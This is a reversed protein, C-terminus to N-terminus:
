VKHTLVSRLRKKKFLAEKRQQKTKKIGGNPTKMNGVEKAVQVGSKIDGLRLDGVSRHLVQLHILELSRSEKRLRSCRSRPLLLAAEESRPDKHLLICEGIVKPQDLKVDYGRGEKKKKKPTNAEEHVWFERRLDDGSIDRKRM